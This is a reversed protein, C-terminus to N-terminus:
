WWGARVGHDDILRKGLGYVMLVRGALENSWAGDEMGAVLGRPELGLERHLRVDVWWTFTGLEM